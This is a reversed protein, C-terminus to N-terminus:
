EENTVPNFLENLVENALHVYKGDCLKLVVGHLMGFLVQIKVFDDSPKLKIQGEKQSGNIKEIYENLDKLFQYVEFQNINDNIYVSKNAFESIISVMHDYHEKDMEKIHSLPEIISSNLIIDALETPSASRLNSIIDYMGSKTDSNIEYIIGFDLIGLKYKNSNNSNNANSDKIFLINGSHLDGHIKGYLFTTVFVFKMIVKAYGLYDEQEIKSIPSGDIFDMVIVDKYKDTIESDVNPITVYKLHKCYKRFVQINKVEQAFDTQHKILDVNKTITEIIQFKDICPIYMIWKLFVLLDAIATNLNAEINRRKIKCVIPEDTARRSGKFVLSIMGSNIPDLPQDFAIDHEKDLIALMNYDIEENTWPANDVFKLLINNIKDDIINNNLAFAQFLKVYLINIQTLKNTISVIFTDYKQHFGFVYKVTEVFLIWGIKFLVVFGTFVSPQILEDDDDDDDYGDIYKFDNM